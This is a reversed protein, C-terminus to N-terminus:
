NPSPPLNAFAQELDVTVAVKNDLDGPQKWTTATM